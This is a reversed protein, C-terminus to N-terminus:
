RALYGLAKLLGKPCVAKIAGVPNKQTARGLSIEVLMVPLGLLVVCTLYILVFAGGGNEGVSYPFRWINGLGIASGAAALVFGIQSSWQGRSSAPLSM